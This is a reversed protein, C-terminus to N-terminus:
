KLMGQLQGIAKHCIGRIQHETKGLQEAIESYEQHQLYKLVVVQRSLESLNQLADLVQELQEAEIVRDLPSRSLGPPEANLTKEPRRARRWDFALHIATRFVYAKRNTARGLGEANRLKLFLDQLLDQAADASMTLRTLLAHLEKGHSELISVLGNPDPSVVTEGTAENVFVSELGSACSNQSFNQWFVGRIRMFQRPM